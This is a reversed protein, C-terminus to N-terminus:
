MKFFGELEEDHEYSQAVSVKKLWELRAWIEVHYKNLIM